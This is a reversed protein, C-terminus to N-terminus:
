SILRLNFPYKYFYGDSTKLAGIICLVLSALGAIMGLPATICGVVPIFALIWLAAQAILATIHFNLAEKGAMNVAPSEDKKWLWIIISLFHSLICFLKDDAVSVSGAGFPLKEGVGSATGTPIPGPPPPPASPPPPAPDPAPPPVPASPPPPPLPDNPSDSM